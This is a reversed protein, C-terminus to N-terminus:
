FKGGNSKYKRQLWHHLHYRTLSSVHLLLSSIVHMASFFSTFHLLMEVSRRVRLLTRSFACRLLSPTGYLQNFNVSGKLSTFQRLMIPPSTRAVTILVFLMENEAHNAHDDETYIRKINCLLEGSIWRCLNDASLPTLQSETLPCVAGSPLGMFFKKNEQQCMSSIKENIYQHGYFERINCSFKKHLQPGQCKVWPLAERETERVCVVHPPFGDTAPSHPEMPCNGWPSM